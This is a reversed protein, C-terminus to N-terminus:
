PFRMLCERLRNVLASDEMCERPTLNDLAPVRSMIWEGARERGMLSIAVQLLELKPATEIRQQKALDGVSSDGSLPTAIHLAAYRQWTEDGSYFEELPM